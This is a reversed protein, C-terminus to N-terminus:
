SYLDKLVSYKIYSEFFFAHAASLQRYDKQQQHSYQMQMEVFIKAIKDKLRALRNKEVGSRTESRACTREMVYKSIAGTGVMACVGLFSFPVILIVVGTACSPILDARLVRQTFYTRVLKEEKDLDIESEEEDM